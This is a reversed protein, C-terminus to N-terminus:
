SNMNAIPLKVNKSKIVNFATHCSKKGDYKAM